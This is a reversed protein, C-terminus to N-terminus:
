ETSQWALFARGPRSVQRSSRCSGCRPGQAAAPRGQWGAAPVWGGWPVVVASTSGSEPAVACRTTCHQCSGGQGPYQQQRVAVTCGVQDHLAALYAALAPLRQAGLYRSVVYSPEVWGLTSIYQDMAADHDRKSYLFDGYRRHVAALAEPSAQDGRAVALALGYARSRMVGELKDALPRERLRIVGGSADGATVAGDPAAQLWRLPLAVPASAAVIRNGLDWARLVGPTSTSSAPPEDSPVAAVLYRGTSCLPHKPGRVAFAAKRGEERSFFSVADPASLALEGGPAMAAGGPAAGCPEDLVKRGTAVSFAATRSASVAWLTVDADPGSLFLSTPASASGASSGAATDGAPNPGLQLPPLPATTRAKALDAKLLHVAGTSLGVAALAQGAGALRAAAAVAAGVPATRGAFLRVSAALPPSSTSLSSPSSGVTWAKLELHRLGEGESGVSLLKGQDYCLHLVTAKHAPFSAAVALDRGLCLIVGDTCGLWLTGDAGACTCAVNEPIAAGSRTRDEDFFRFKRWAVAM